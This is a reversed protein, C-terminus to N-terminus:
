MGNKKLYVTPKTIYSIYNINFQKRHTVIINREEIAIVVKGQPYLPIATSYNVLM